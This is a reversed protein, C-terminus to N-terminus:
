RTRHVMTRINRSTCPVSKCKLSISADALNTDFEYFILINARFAAKFRRIERQWAFFAHCCKRSREKADAFVPTYVIWRLPCMTRKGRKRLLLNNHNKEVSKEGAPLSVANIAVGNEFEAREIVAGQRVHAELAGVDLKDSAFGGSACMSKTPANRASVM